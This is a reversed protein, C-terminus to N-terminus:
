LLSRVEAKFAAVDAASSRGESLTPVVSVEVDGVRRQGEGLMLVVFVEVCLVRVVNEWRWCQSSLDGCAFCV